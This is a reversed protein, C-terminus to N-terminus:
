SETYIQRFRGLFPMGLTFQMSNKHWKSSICPPQDWKFPSVRLNTEWYDSDSYDYQYQTIASQICVFFSFFFEAQM